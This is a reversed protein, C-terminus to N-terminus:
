TLRLEICHADRHRIIIDTSDIRVHLPGRFAAQRILRVRKGARFGMAHLRHQLAEGVHIACVSAIQGPVLSTLPLTM